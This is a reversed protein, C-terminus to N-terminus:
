QLSNRKLVKFLFRPIDLFIKARRPEKITRYLWELGILRFPAPARKKNGSWVDLSGGLGIFIKVSPLSPANEVIWKEQVPYGMCVLIIDPRKKSIAKVIKENEEGSKKFYGHYAGCINLHPYRMKLGRKAKKAVGKAAGLLFVSYGMKQALLLISEALDIGSIRSKIKGGRMKSAIVIGIGDPINVDAFNLLEAESSKQASLLIQPNPTFIVTRKKQRARLAVIKLIERKTLTSINVSLIKECDSSNFTSNKRM